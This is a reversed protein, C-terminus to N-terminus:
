LFYKDAMSFHPNPSNSPNIHDAFFNLNISFAHHSATHAYVTDVSKMM